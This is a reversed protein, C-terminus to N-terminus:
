PVPTRITKPPHPTPWVRYVSPGRDQGGRFVQVVLGAKRLKALAKAVGRVSCGIRTAIDKMSVCATGKRTDRYLVLWAGIEVRSLKVMGADVFANLVAFRDGTSRRPPKGKAKGNGLHRAATSGNARHLPPPEQGVKLIPPESNM